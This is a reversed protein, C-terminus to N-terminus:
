FLPGWPYSGPKMTVTVGEPTAMRIVGPATEATISFSEWGLRKLIAFATAGGEIILEKPTHAQCITAVIEAIASRLYIAADRGTRHRDRMAVIMAPKRRFAEELELAWASAANMDGDYAETPMYRTPVGIGLDKSLTSGCIILCDSFDVGTHIDPKPACPFHRHLYATFLDAAGALLTDDPTDTVLKAIDESTEADAFRINAAEADPFRDALLSSFAPFEPDFSFDTQHLPKGEIYYVGNRITRDKSPNAPVYLARKYGTASLLADLEEVVHGRLASDTKKFIRDVDIREALAAGIAASENAAEAATMSRTDTAVVLVDCGRRASADTTLEVRLGLRHAIGAMEAAGTIDDAIVAIM